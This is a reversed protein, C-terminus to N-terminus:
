RDDYQDLNPDQNSVFSPLSVNTANFASTKVIKREGYGDSVRVNFSGFRTGIISHPLYSVLCQNDTSNVGLDGLVEVMLQIDGEVHATSVARDRDEPKYTMTGFSKQIVVEDGPGLAIKTVTGLPEYHDTTMFNPRLGASNDMSLLTNTPREAQIANAASFASVTINAYGRDVMKDNLDQLYNKATSEKTKFFQYKVHVNCNAQNKLRYKVFRNTIKVRSNISTLDVVGGTAAVNSIVSIANDYEESTLGKLLYCVKTNPNGFDMCFPVLEANEEKSDPPMKGMRKKLRKVETKLSPKSKKKKKKTKKKIRSRGAQDGQPMYSGTSSSSSKQNKKTKKIGPATAAARNRKGLITGALKIIPILQDLQSFQRDTLAGTAM